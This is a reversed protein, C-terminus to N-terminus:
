ARSTGRDGASDRGAFAALVIRACAEADSLPDHHDLQLGLHRAVDPLKTPFLGWTRRALQVTCTFPTAPMPVGYWECCTRLVSRDFSANHAAVFAVGRFLPLLETWLEAFTPADRVDSWALGHVHTFDFRRFPPRILHSARRTIRGRVVRVVAVACASNRYGNATEFDLAVFTRPHM